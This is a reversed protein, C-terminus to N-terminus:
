NSRDVRVSPRQYGRLHLPPRVVVHLVVPVGLELLAEQGCRGRGGGRRWRGRGRRKGAGRERGRQERREGYRGHLGLRVGAVVEQRRREAEPVREGGGGGGGVAGGRGGGRRRRGGVVPRRRLVACAFRGEEQQVEARAGVEGAGVLEVEGAAVVVREVRDQRRRRTPIALKKARQTRPVGSDNWPCRLTATPDTTRVVM